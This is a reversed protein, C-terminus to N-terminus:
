QYQTSCLEVASWRVLNVIMAVAADDDTPKKASL